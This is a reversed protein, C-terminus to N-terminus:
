NSRNGIFIIFAGALALFSGVIDWKNFSEKEILILWLLSSLIYIGGYIAYVRGANEVDIRTLLYSFLVLSIIGIPIWWFTKDLRFYLWFSFCGFIEFFASLFFIVLNNFM